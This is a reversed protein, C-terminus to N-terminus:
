VLTTVEEVLLSVGEIRGDDDRVAHYSHRFSREVGPASDTAGSVEGAIVPEGTELVEYLVNWITPSTRFSKACRAALSRPLRGAM